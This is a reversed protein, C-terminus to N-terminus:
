AQPGRWPALCTAGTFTDLALCTRQGDIVTKFDQHIENWARFINSHARYREIDARHQGTVGNAEKYDTEARERTSRKPGTTGDDYVAVYESPTAPNFLETARTHVGPMTPQQM